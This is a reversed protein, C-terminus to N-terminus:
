YSQPDATKNLQTINEAKRKVELIETVDKFDEYRKIERLIWRESNQTIEESNRTPDRPSAVLTQITEQEPLLARITPSGAPEREICQVFINLLHKLLLTSVVLTVLWSIQNIQTFVYSVHNFSYKHLFILPM